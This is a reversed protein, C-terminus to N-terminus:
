KISKFLRILLKLVALHMVLPARFFFRIEALMGDIITVKNVYRICM